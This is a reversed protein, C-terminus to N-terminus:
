SHRKKLINKRESHVHWLPSFGLFGTLFTYDTAVERPWTVQLLAYGKFFPAVM